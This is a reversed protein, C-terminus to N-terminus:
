SLTEGRPRHWLQSWHNGCAQWGAEGEGQANGDGDGGGGDGGDVVQADGDDAGEM